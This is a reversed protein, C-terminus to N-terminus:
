HNGAYRYVQQLVPHSRKYVERSADDFTRKVTSLGSKRIRHLTPEGCVCGAKKVSELYMQNFTLGTCRVLRDRASEWHEIGNVFSRRIPKCPNLSHQKAEHAYRWSSAKASVWLGSLTKKWLDLGDSLVSKGFSVCLGKLNNIAKVASDGVPVIRENMLKGASIRAAKSFPLVLDNKFQGTTNYVWKSLPVASENKFKGSARLVAKGFPQVRETKFRQSAKLAEGYFLRIETSALRFKSAEWLAVTQSRWVSLQYQFARQGDAISQAFVLKAETIWQPTSAQLVQWQKQLRLRKSPKTAFIGFKAPSAEEEYVIAELFHSLRDTLTAEKSLVIPNPLLLYYWLSFVGTVITALYYLLYEQRSELALAISLLTTQWLTLESTGSASQAKLSSLKRACAKNYARRSLAKFFEDISYLVSALFVLVRVVKNDATPNVGFNGPTPPEFTSSNVNAMEKFIPDEKADKGKRSEISQVISQVRTTASDTSGARPKERITCFSDDVLQLCVSESGSHDSESPTSVVEIDDRVSSTTSEDEFDSSSSIISWEEDNTVSM